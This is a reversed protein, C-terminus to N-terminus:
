KTILNLFWGVISLVLSFIIATWLNQVSFGPVLSSTLLIVLGNIVFTFLGLTLINLPLTFIILLPKILTNVIGLVVAVVVATFFNKLVVGPLLYGTIFVALGNVILYIFLNM